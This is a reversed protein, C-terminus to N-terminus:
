ENQEKLRKSLDQIRIEEKVLSNGEKMAHEFKIKQKGFKRRTISLLCQSALAFSPSLGVSKFSKYHPGTPLVTSDGGDDPLSDNMEISETDQSAM